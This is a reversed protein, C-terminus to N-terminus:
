TAPSVRATGATVRLGREPPRSRRCDQGIGGSGVSVRVAILAPRRSHQAAVEHDRRDHDDDPDDL